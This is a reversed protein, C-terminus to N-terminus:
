AAQSFNLKGKSERVTNLHAAIINYITLNINESKKNQGKERWRASVTEGGPMEKRSSSGERM